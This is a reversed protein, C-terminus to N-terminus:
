VYLNCLIYILLLSCTFFEFYTNMFQKELLALFFIAFTPGLPSGMTVGDLHSYLNGKSLSINM